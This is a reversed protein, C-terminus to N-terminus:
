VLAGTKRLVKASVPPTLGIIRLALDAPMEKGTMLLFQRRVQIYLVERGDIVTCGIERANGILPTVTAGYVLDVIVADRSLGKLDFPLDRNDRGVPTANVILSYGNVTFQSLPVFPLGLLENAHNGRELSRNVLTVKAGAQDLAAAIARGSGGCGVVAVQKGKLVFGRQSIAEVVGEPDSTDAKWTGNNRLFVNTSGARRVMDSVTTVEHLATEKHPSVVTLGKMSIGLSELAGAEVINRWFDSFSEAHFPVFLAPYDLARYAANHLRPSLSKRVPDGVIGYIERLPPLEHLHYEEILQSVTPEWRDEPHKGVLGFMMPMGFYPSLLRTWFGTKGGAYAIVDQRRASKLLSLAAIEDGSRQAWPVLKYIRARVDSFRELRQKLSPYDAAAGHWSILRKDPPIMNLIEAQLDRDGELDILDYHRAATHLRRRREADSGEFNGGEAKSRLTYILKGHFHTRLWDPNIDGALDAQVELWNVERPLLYLEEAGATPSTLLTAAISAQRM